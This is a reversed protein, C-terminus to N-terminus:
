RAPLTGPRSGASRARYAAVNARNGCFEYSHWRRSRNRSTDYFVVRCDENACLRLRSWNGETVLAAVSRVIEGVVPDGTVQRLEAHGPASFDQRFTISATRGALAAWHGASDTRDAPDVVDLLDARVARVLDLRQPSPVGEQGFPLLVAAAEQATDLKDPSFAYFRSNLLDVVAAARAPVSGDDGTRATSTAM